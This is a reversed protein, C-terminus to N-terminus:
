KTDYTKHSIVKALKEDVDPSETTLTTLNEFVLKKFMNYTEPHNEKLKIVWKPQTM